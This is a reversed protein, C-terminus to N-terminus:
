KKKKKGFIDILGGVPDPQPEKAPQTTQGEAPPPQKKKQGLVDGLIDGVPNPKGDKKEGGLLNGLQAKAQAEVFAKAFDGFDPVPRTTTGGLTVPIGEPFFKEIDSSNFMQAPLNVLLNQKLDSMRVTGEFKMPYLQSKTPSAAIANDPPKNGIELVIRETVVGRDITIVADQIQGRFADTSSTQKSLGLKNLSDAFLLGGLPNAIDMERLSFLLEAKGSKPGKMGEGLALKDCSVVTLDILGQARTTNAFVPNIFKGLSDGLLPNFSANTVLKQNKGISIRMEDGTLDVLISNLDLTGGNLQAPKAAREAKPKNMYLTVLQGNALSVPLELNQLNVGSTDLLGVALAGNVTLPKISEQWKDNAPYSGAINFTWPTKGAIKLDKLSEQTEPALMPKIIPWLKELDPAVVVTTGDLKRQVEWDEVKGVLKVSAAQSQPMTLEINKITAIKKAPDAVVDNALVIQKETFQPKGDAGLVQFDDVTVNGALKVNGTETGVTQAVAYNGRYPMPDADQVVSLLRMLPELPGSLGIKGNAASAETTLATLVIGDPLALMAIGGLDGSLQAIKIQDVQEVPQTSATTPVKKTGLEAALKLSIPKDFAFPARKGRTLEVNNAVIEPATVRTISGERVIDLQVIASGKIKLPDIPQTTPDVPQTSPPTFAQVVAYTKALDPLDIRIKARKLMEFTGGGLLLETDTVQTKAFSSDIVASAVNVASFDAPTNARVTITVKENQIPAANTTVSLNDIGGDLQIDTGTKEQSALKLTAAFNGSTLQGASTTVASQGGMAQLVDNVRKLDSTIVLEGDGGIAGSPAIQVVLPGQGGKQVTVLGTSSTVALQQLTAVMTKGPPMEIAGAAVISETENAI